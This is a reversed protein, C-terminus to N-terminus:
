SGVLRQSQRFVHLLYCIIWRAFRAPAIVFKILGVVASWCLRLEAGWRLEAASIKM